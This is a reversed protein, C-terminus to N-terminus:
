KRSSIITWSCGACTLSSGCTRLAYFIQPYIARVVTHLFRFTLDDYCSAGGGFKSQFDLRLAKVEAFDIGEEKALRGAEGAPGQALVCERLLEQSVANPEVTDYLHTM